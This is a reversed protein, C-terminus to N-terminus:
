EVLFMLAEYGEKKMDDFAIFRLAAGNICYRKGGQSPLGDDFVHGLHSNAVRSRVETRMMHHSTDQHYTIVTDDIPRSFSPWGCGANYKHTSVFLPEGSVVDVYIGREFLTDYVHSFARETGNQQTIYYESASLHSLTKDYDQYYVPNLPDKTNTTHHTTNPPTGDLPLDALTIDIHCYGNPNKQLYNQHYEEAPYFNDLPLNEVVIPQQHYRQLHALASEIVMKDQENVYYIGTRYQVGKDNGQQNLSTPNIIRFYYLLLTPLDILRSDYVVKVTEAHGSGNIVDEYSPNALTGNAYGSTASVVGTIRKLYAEVGWFCGGALYIVCLSTPTSQSHQM